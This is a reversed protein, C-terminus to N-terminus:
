LWDNFLIGFSIRNIPHNYDLPSEGYGNFYQIFGKVYSNIPFSIGLEVAGKNNNEIRLNNRWLASFVCEQIKWAWLLEFNGMYRGIEPNEDAQYTEPLRIWPKLMLFHGGRAVGAVAYLRDWSRSLLTDRGNSQHVGGLQLFRLTWGRFEVDLPFSLFAEPEYTSERFPASIRRNYVQWYSAQTYAFNLDGYGWFMRRIVPIRFSIQFKAEVNQLGAGGLLDRGAQNPHDMYTFPLLFNPKYPVLRLGNSQWLREQDLRKDLASPESARAATLFFPLVALTLGYARLRRM